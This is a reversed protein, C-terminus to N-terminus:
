NLNVKVQRHWVANSALMDTFKLGHSSKRPRLDEWFDPDDLVSLKYGSCDLCFLTTAGASHWCRPVKVGNKVPDWLAPAPLVALRHSGYGSLGTSKPSAAFHLGYSHSGVCAKSEYVTRGVPYMMFGMSSRHEGDRKSIVKGLLLSYDMVTIGSDTRTVQLPIAYPKTADYHCM